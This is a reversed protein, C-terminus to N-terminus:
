LSPEPPQLHSLPGSERWLAPYLDDWNPNDQEILNIKWERRYRKLSTERQIATVIGERMEFWVLRKVGYRATFGPTEGSRHQGIRQIFHGSVGIYSMGHQRSAMMYVANSPHIM